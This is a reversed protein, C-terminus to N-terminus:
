NVRSPVRRLGDLTRLEEVCTEIQHDISIWAALHGSIRDIESLRLTEDEQVASLREIEADEERLKQQAITEVAETMARLLAAFHEGAVGGTSEATVPALLQQRVRGLLDALDGDLQQQASMKLEHGAARWASALSILGGVMALIATTPSFGVILTDILRTIVKEDLQLREIRDLWTIRAAARYGSLPHITLRDAGSPVTIPEVADYLPGLLEACRRRADLGLERLERIVDGVLEDALTESLEQAAGLSQVAAIRKRHALEIRGGERLADAFAARSEDCIERVQALLKRRLTGHEGWDQEFEQRHRVLEQQRADRQQRTDEAVQTLREDLIRRGVAHYRDAIALVAAARAWGDVRFLFGRLAEALASYRSLQRYLDDDPAAKRLLTSSIPWVRADELRDGFQQKLIAENRRRQEKWTVDNHQDFKTQIFFVSPTVTLIQELVDLELRTIPNDSDLVFIAADSLPLLRQVIQAHSAFMSGLGPTDLLVVGDPLFRVDTEIEIWRIAQDLGRNVEDLEFAQSGYRPLDNLTITRTSGDEFRLRYADSAGHVVRFVRSTCVRVDTPLIDRGILANIFTSKGRNVEGLVLVTYADEMLRRVLSDFGGPRPPLDSREALHSLEALLKGIKGRLAEAQESQTGCTNM